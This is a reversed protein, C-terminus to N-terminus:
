KGHMDRSNRRPKRKKRMNPYQYKTVGLLSPNEDLGDGFSL